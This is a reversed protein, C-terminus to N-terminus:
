FSLYATLHLSHPHYGRVSPAGAPGSGAGQWVKLLMEILAFRGAFSTSAASIKNGQTKTPAVCTKILSA